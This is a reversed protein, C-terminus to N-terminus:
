YLSNYFDILKILDNINKFNIENEKIFLEMQDKKGSVIGIIFEKEKKLRKMKNNSFVYYDEYTNFQKEIEGSLDNKNVAVTKRISKLFTIPGESLVQYFNNTTQNDIKPFGSKFLYKKNQVSDFLDLTKIYGPVIVIEINNKMVHVEQNCVDLRIKIREYTAGNSLQMSSYTWNDIFFPSGKVDPYTNIFPRGDANTINLQSPYTERKLIEVVKPRPPQTSQSFLFTASHHILIFFIFIKNMNHAPKIFRLAGVPVKRKPNKNRIKQQLV